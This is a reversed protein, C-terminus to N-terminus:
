LGVVVQRKVMWILGGQPLNALFLAVFVRVLADLAQVLAVILIRVSLLEVRNTGHLSFGQSFSLKMM